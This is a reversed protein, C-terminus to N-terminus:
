ATEKMRRENEGDNIWINHKARQEWVHTIDTREKPNSILNCM